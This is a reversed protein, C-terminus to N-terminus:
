GLLEDVGVFPVVALDDVRDGGLSQQDVVDGVPPLGQAGEEPNRDGVLRDGAEVVPLGEPVEEPEVPNDGGLRGLVGLLLHLAM